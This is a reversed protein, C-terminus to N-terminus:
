GTLSFFLYKQTQPKYNLYDFESNSNRRWLQAAKLGAARNNDLGVPNM